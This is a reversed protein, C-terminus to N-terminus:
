GGTKMAATTAVHRFYTGYFIPDHRFYPTLLIFYPTLDLMAYFIPDHM